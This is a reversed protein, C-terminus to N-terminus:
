AASSSEGPLEHDVSAPRAPEAVGISPYERWPGTCVDVRVGIVADVAVGGCAPCLVGSFPYPSTHYGERIGNGM